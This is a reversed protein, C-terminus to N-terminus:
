LKYGNCELTLLKNQQRWLVNKSKTLFYTEKPDGQHGVDENKFQTVKVM